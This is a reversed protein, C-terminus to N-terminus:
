LRDIVIKREIAILCGLRVLVRGRHQLYYKWSIHLLGGIGLGSGWAGASTWRSIRITKIVTSRVKTDLL